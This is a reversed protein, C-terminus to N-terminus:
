LLGEVDQDTPVDNARAQLRERGIAVKYATNEALFEVLKRISWHTFSRGLSKPRAKATAVIFAVDDSSIQRPRAGPWKPTWSSWGWGDFIHVM